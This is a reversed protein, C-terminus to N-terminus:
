ARERWHTVDYLIQWELSRWVEGTWSAIVIETLFWVEVLEGIPPKDTRWPHKNM